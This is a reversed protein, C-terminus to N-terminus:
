LNQPGQKLNDYKISSDSSESNSNKVIKGELLDVNVPGRKRKLMQKTECNGTEKFHKIIHKATSYNIDLKEAADKIQM